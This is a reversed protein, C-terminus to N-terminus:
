CSTANCVVSASTEDMNSEMEVRAAVITKLEKAVKLLINSDSSFIDDYVTNITPISEHLVACSFLHQQSDEFVKCLPCLINTQRYQNRFNNRVNFMRTRFKFLLNVLDPTFRSDTIYQMGNINSYANENVKSHCRAQNILSEYAAIASRKNLLEKLANRGMSTIEASAPINLARLSEEVQTYFDGKLMKEKQSVVIQKTLETDERKMVEYYYMIRRIMLKYRFPVVGLELYLSEIPTKSHAKLIKRFLGQEAREFLACRMETFHPWTEMNVMTGNLFIAQHLLKATSYVQYGLSIESCMAQCTVAYGQAREYRKRYLIDWGDATHDGLYKYQFCQTTNSGNIVFCSRCDEKGVHLWQCKGDGVQGELKKMKIFEDTQINNKIAHISNCAAINVIDDVMALAPIPVRDHYMYVNGEDFSKNCLKSIQNSCITGGSVSGQMVVNELRVRESQGFSTDVCMETSKNGEYMLNLNRSTIGSDYLDNIAEQLWISDFCQKIDFFQLDINQKSTQADNIVAHVVLAHDRISRGKQNGVQHPGMNKNLVEQDQFYILRDLINRVIPLKFIGRLNIVERKSGKGKYITSVNSLKLSEPVLLEFKIRNMM